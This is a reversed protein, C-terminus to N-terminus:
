KYSLKAQEIGIPELGGWIFKNIMKQIKHMKKWNPSALSISYHTLKSLLLSKAVNSKGITTCLKKNWEKIM